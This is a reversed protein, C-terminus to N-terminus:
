DGIRTVSFIGIASALDTTGDTKPRVTDTAALRLTKSCQAPTATTGAVAARLGQAYTTTLVSTTLASDNLTIGTTFGGSSKSDTYEFHYLGPILCTFVLGLTSSDALTAYSGLTNARSNTFRRIKNDTSGHGNPTDFHAGVALAGYYHQIIDISTGNSKLGYVEGNMYMPATTAAGTGIVEAGFATITYVNTTSTGKHIFWRTEGRWQACPQLQFAFSTSSFDIMKDRPLMVDAASVTRNTLAPNMRYYSEIQELNQSANNFAWGVCRWSQSPHYYGRLDERRDHPKVNSIIKDGTETIYFYYYTSAAETVGSDLDLTMDWTHINYDNVVSAGWVNIKGGPFRSKVASNSEAFLEITNLEDFAKFTDFSRAAVTNTTDQVCIGILTAAATVFSTGSYTKWTNASLDFWYDGIAPSTPEDDAWVPNNYTVTTTLDTKAFIWSLKGLTITAGNSYTTRALPAGASDFFFGRRIKSLVTASKVYALFYETSIKFAAFKGVLASIETGVTAMVIETGDEGQYKTWYQASALADSVTATNNSSPAATLNTLATDTIISYEIGNVYYILNPTVDVTVTRAAGSPVLFLPQASNSRVKGSVIRNDTLGTGIANALGELSASPSEYWEEQGTIEAILFRLRQIEGAVSTALSETGVEGPDATSQMQTVNTSYDDVNAATLNNLINDFEANLDVSTVDETTVWNKLRPFNAGPM